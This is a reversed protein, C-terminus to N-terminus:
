APPYVRHRTFSTFFQGQVRQVGLPLTREEGFADLLVRRVFKGIRQCVTELAIELLRAEDAVAQEGLELLVFRTVDDRSYDTTVYALALERVRRRMWASLAPASEM